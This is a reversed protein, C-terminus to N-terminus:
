SGTANKRFNRSRVGVPKLKQSFTGRHVWWRWLYSSEEYMQERSYNLFTDSELLSRLSELLFVALRYAGARCGNLARRRAIM